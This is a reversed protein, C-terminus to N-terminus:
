RILSLFFFSKYEKLKEKMYKIMRRVIRMKLENDENEEDTDEYESFLTFSLNVEEVSDEDETDM